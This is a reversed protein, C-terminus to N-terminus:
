MRWTKVTEALPTTPRGLLRSLDTEGVELDGAATGQDVGVLFEILGADLGAAQLAERHGAADVANVTIDRGLVQSFTSALEDVTWSDDGGLEYTVGDHGETSAVIAAAEAYDARSASSTRGEAASSLISGTQQVQEFVPLSNETYWGNRLITHSIGSNKLAKETDIHEPGLVLSTSDAKALSTYVIRAVGAKTAADIVNQHQRARQGVESSSILVLTDGSNLVGDAPTEYDFVATRVGKAALASLKEFSRGTALIDTSEVGRALLSDVVLTGLNGTAATVVITM